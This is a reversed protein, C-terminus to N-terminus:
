GSVLREAIALAGDLAHRDLRRWTDCARHRCRDTGGWVGLKAGALGALEFERHDSNGTGADPMFRVTVGAARAAALVPREVGRRPRAHPSQLFFRRGRGVEDLSLALRVDGRRRLRDVRAVLALAGLHDRQGTYPREEAGTAVLWTDCTVGAGRLRHALAILVGVGSANDNGGPAPPVSDAHAMLINLCRSPTDLVGVVDRSRGRRPVTFREYAVRLGAARFQAAAYRHARLEEASGAPRPGIARALHVAARYPTPAEAAVAAGTRVVVAPGTAVAVAVVVSILPRRSLM